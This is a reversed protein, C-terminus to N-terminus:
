RVEFKERLHTSVKKEVLVNELHCLDNEALFEKLADMAM